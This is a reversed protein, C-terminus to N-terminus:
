PQHGWPDGGGQVEDTLGEEIAIDGRQVGILVSTAFAAIATFVHAPLKGAIEEHTGVDGYAAGLEYVQRLWLRRAESEGLKTRAPSPAQQGQPRNQAAQQIVSGPTGQPYSVGGIVAPAALTGTDTMWAPDQRQQPAPAPQQGYVQPQTSAPASANQLNFCKLQAKGDYSSKKLGVKQNKGNLSSFLRVQDGRKVPSFPKDKSGSYAVTIEGTADQLVFSQWPGYEGERVNYATKVTGIVEDLPSSDALIGQAHLDNIQQITIPM